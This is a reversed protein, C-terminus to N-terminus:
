RQAASFSIPPSRPCCIMNITRGATNSRLTGAQGADALGRKVATIAPGGPPSYSDASLWGVLPLAAQQARAVVPWAAASGLGAIFDRRKM